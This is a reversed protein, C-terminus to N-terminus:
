PDAPADCSELNLLNKQNSERTNRMIEAMKEKRKRIVNGQDPEIIDLVRCPSSIVHLLLQLHPFNFCQKSFTLQIGSCVAPLNM